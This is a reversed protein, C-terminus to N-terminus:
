RLLEKLFSKGHRLPKLALYEAATQGLDALTRRVGLATGAKVQAGTVLLPVYERTHDTSTTTPDNGHDATIFLLDEANLRSLIEPLRHDFERLGAYFGAVDNRHGWDMDFQLLNTFLIGTFESKLEELTHGLAVANNVTHHCRTYGQHAFLDDIKGVLVVEQDAECAHDLLTPEPPPCSFDKRGPSRIFSGPAGTFPRAIVRAVQWEGRMLSRVTRCMQYLREPPCIAEHAALQLVSDASTYLIPYGTRLHEEGWIRIAETGSIARNGIVRTGIAAEVQRVLEEPFGNRFVPFPKESIVGAIEWHGITSDKGVSAIAMKGFASSANDCPPCGALEAINGLGLSQLVPLDLGGVARALNGLTDSGADGYAAADPLEGIGVGDLLLIIVRKMVSQRGDAPCKRDAPKTMHLAPPPIQVRVGYSM